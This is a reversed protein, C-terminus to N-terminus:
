EIEILEIQKGNRQVYKKQEGRQIELPLIQLENSSQGQQILSLSM